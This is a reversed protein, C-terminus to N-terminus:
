YFFLYLIGLFSIIIFKILISRLFLNKKKEIMNLM